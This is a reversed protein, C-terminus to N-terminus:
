INTCHMLYAIHMMVLLNLLESLLLFGLLDFLRPLELHRLLGQRLGANLVNMLLAFLSNIQVFHRRAM